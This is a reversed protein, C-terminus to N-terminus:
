SMDGLPALPEECGVGAGPEWSSGAVALVTAVAVQICGM